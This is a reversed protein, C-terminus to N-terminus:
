WLNRLPDDEAPAPPTAPPSQAVARPNGPPYLAANPYNPPPMRRREVVLAIVSVVVVVVVGIALLGVFGHLNGGSPNPTTAAPCGIGTFLCNQQAQAGTVAEPEGQVTTPPAADTASQAMTTLGVPDTGGSLASAPGLTSSSYVWQSAGIGLHGGESSRIDLYSMAASASGNQAGWPPNSAGGFLDSASPVLIFGERVSFPGVVKLAVEPYSVGGLVTTNAPSYDGNLTVTGSTPVSFNGTYPGEQTSRLPGKTSQFFAYSAAAHATFQATSNWSQAGSLTVPLLGLDPTFNVTTAAAVNVGLYHSRPAVLGAFGPIYSSSAETLNAHLRSQSNNLAIAPVAVGNEYVTGDNSFNANADVTEYIHDSVNGFFKPSQCNPSCYRVQFLAGMTRNVSLEFTASSTNTQNLIVSYGYTANGSYQWGTLSEGQFDVTKVAGYAWVTQPAGPTAAAASAALGAPIALLLLTVLVPVGFATLTRHARPLKTNTV